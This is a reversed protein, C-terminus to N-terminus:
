SRGSPTPHSSRQGRLALPRLFAQVTQFLCSPAATRGPLLAQDLVASGAEDQVRRQLRGRPPFELVFQRPHGESVPQTYDFAKFPVEHVTRYFTFLCKNFVTQEIITM